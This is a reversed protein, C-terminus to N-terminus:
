FIGISCQPGKLQPWVPHLFGPSVLFGGQIGMKVAAAMFNSTCCPTQTPTPCLKYGRPGFTDVITLHLKSKTFLPAASSGSPLFGRWVDLELGSGHFLACPRPKKTSSPCSNVGRPRFIVILVLYMMQTPSHLPTPPRSATMNICIPASRSSIRQPNNHIHNPSNLTFM